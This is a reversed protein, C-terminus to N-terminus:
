ESSKSSTSVIAAFFREVKAPLEDLTGDNWFIYDYSFENVHDDAENGLLGQKQELAPRHVLLTSCHGPVAACFRAIEQPERIHVFLIQDNSQQFTEWQALCYRLPLDNFVTCAHKLEALFRRAERTKVGDWGAAQAVTQIPTISSITKVRWYRAALQCITDKGVGASGNIVFIHKQM